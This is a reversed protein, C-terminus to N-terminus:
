KFRKIFTKFGCNPCSIKIITKEIKVDVPFGCAEAPCTVIDPFKDLKYRNIQKIIKEALEPRLKQSELYQLNKEKSSELSKLTEMIKPNPIKHKSNRDTAHRASAQRLSTGRSPITGDVTTKPPIGSFVQTAL